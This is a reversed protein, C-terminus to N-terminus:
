RGDPQQSSLLQRYRLIADDSRGTESLLRALWLLADQDRPHRSVWRELEAIAAARDGRRTREYVRDQLAQRPSRTGDGRARLESLTYPRAKSRRWEADEAAFAAYDASDPEIPQFPRDETVREMPWQEARAAAAREARALADVRRFVAIGSATLAVV